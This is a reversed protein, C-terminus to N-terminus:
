LGRCPPLWPGQAPPHPPHGPGWGTGHAAHARGVPVPGARVRAAGIHNPRHGTRYASCAGGGSMAWARVLAARGSLLAAQTATATGTSCRAQLCPGPGSGLLVTPWFSSFREGTLSDCHQYTRGVPRPRAMVRAADAHCGTLWAAVRATATEAYPRVRTCRLAHQENFRCMCTCLLPLQLLDATSSCCRMPILDESAWARSDIDRGTIRAQLAAGEQCGQKAPLRRARSTAVRVRMLEVRCHQQRRVHSLVRRQLRALLM